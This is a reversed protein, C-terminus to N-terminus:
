PKNKYPLCPLLHLLTLCTFPLLSTLSLSLCSPPSSAAGCRLLSPLTPHYPLSPVVWPLSSSELIPWLPPPFPLTPLSTCYPLSSLSSPSPDHFLPFGYVVQVDETTFYGILACLIFRISLSSQIISDLTEGTQGMATPVLQTFMTTAKLIISDPEIHRIAEYIRSPSFELRAIPLHCLDCALHEKRVPVRGEGVVEAGLDEREYLSRM